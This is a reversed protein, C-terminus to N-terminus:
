TWAHLLRAHREEAEREDHGGSENAVPDKAKFTDFNAQVNDFDM